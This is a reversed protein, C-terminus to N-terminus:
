SRHAAPSIPSSRPRTRRINGPVSWDDPHPMIDLGDRWQDPQLSGGFRVLKSLPPARKLGRSPDLYVHQWLASLFSERELQQPGSKRRLHSQACNFTCFHGYCYFIDANCWKVPIGVPWWTFPYSCYDRSHDEETPNCSGVCVLQRHAVILQEHAWRIREATSMGEMGYTNRDEVNKVGMCVSLSFDEQDPNSGDSSVIVDPQKMGRGNQAFLGAYCTRRGIHCHILDDQADGYRAHLEAHCPELFDLKDSEIVQKGALSRQIKSVKIYVGELVKRFHKAIHRSPPESPQEESSGTWLLRDAPVMEKNKMWATRLKHPREAPDLLDGRETLGIM